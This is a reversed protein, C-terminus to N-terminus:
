VVEVSMVMAFAIGLFVAVIRAWNPVQPIALEKASFGGGVLAILFFMVSAVLSVTEPAMDGAM